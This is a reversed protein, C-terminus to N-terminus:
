VGSCAAARTGSPESLITRWVGVRPADFLPTTAVGDMVPSACAGTDGVLSSSTVTVAMTVAPSPVSADTLICHVSLAAGCVSMVM